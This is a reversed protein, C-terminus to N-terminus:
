REGLPLGCVQGGGYGGPVWPHCISPSQVLYHSPLTTGQSCNNMRWLCSTVMFLPHSCPYSTTMTIMEAFAYVHRHGTAKLKEDWLEPPFCRLFFPPWCWCCPEWLVYARQKQTPSALRQSSHTLVQPFLQSDLVSTQM